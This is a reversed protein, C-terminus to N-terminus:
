VADAVATTAPQSAPESGHGVQSVM